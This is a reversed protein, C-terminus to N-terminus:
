PTAEPDVRYSTIQFGLPNILRDTEKLPKNMYEFAVTAIMKQPPPKNPNGAALPILHKEFRVQAMEGVFSIASVKVIVKFQDKLVLHPAAPNNNYLKAFEAQIQPASLLNTADYTSQVTQWDYSERYGVYQALWYKNIVEGYSKESTKLQTVIDTAGTNNDVRIVFPTVTKLPTLGAIAGIALGMILLCVGTIRWAIKSNQRVRDIESKEFAKASQIFKNAAKQSSMNKQTM